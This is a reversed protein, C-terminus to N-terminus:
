RNKGRTLSMQVRYRNVYAINVGSIVRDARLAVDDFSIKDVNVAIYTSSVGQSKDAFYAGYDIDSYHRYHFQIQASGYLIKTILHNRATYADGFGENGSGPRASLYGQIEFSHTIDKLDKIQTGPNHTDQVSTSQVRNISILSNSIVEEVKECEIFVGSAVGTKMLKVVQQGTTTTM